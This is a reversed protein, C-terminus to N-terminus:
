FLRSEVNQFYDSTLNLSQLCGSKKKCYGPLVTLLHPIKKVVPLQIALLMVALRPAFLVFRKFNVVVLLSAVSTSSLPYVKQIKEM